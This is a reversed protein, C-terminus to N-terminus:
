RRLYFALPEGHRQPKNAPEGDQEIIPRVREVYFDAVAEPTDWVNVGTVQDDGADAVPEGHRAWHEDDRRAVAPRFDM